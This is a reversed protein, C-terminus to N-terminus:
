VYNFYICQKSLSVYKLIMYFFMLQIVHCFSLSLNILTKCNKLFFFVSKGIKGMHFYLKHELFVM